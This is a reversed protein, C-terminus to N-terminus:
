PRPSGRSASRAVRRLATAKIYLYVQRGPALGLARIPEATVAVRLRTPGTRVLLSRGFRGAGRGISEVTAPLVNRASSAFRARAVVIAEPDLTIRVREGDNASFAVRLALTPGLAVAPPPGARYTGRLLNTPSPARTAGLTDLVDFGGRAIRDGLPTLQTGGHTAGGRATAVVPRGFARSLRRLHYNARDRSIRLARAAAVVSANAGIQELLAVDLSSVTRPRDTM